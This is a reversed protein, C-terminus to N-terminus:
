DSVLVLKQPGAQLAQAVGAEFPIATHVAAVPVQPIAQLVPKLFQGPVLMHTAVAPQQVLASQVAPGALVVPTHPVAFM